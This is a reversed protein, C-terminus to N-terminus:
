LNSLEGGLHGVEGGSLRLPVYFHLMHQLFIVQVPRPSVQSLTTKAKEFASESRGM